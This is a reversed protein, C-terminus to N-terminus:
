NKIVEKYVLTYSDMMSKIDYEDARVACDNAIKLYYESDKSLRNILQALEEANKNEFLLGAGGVVEKLGNVNTAIFPKGAAMGEISSLSLGEYDSAMIVVDSTKLIRPVDTRIYLFHIRKEVGLEEAQRRVRIIGEDEKEGGVFVAHIHDPLKAMSEVITDQRKMSMFRAVMTIVFCNEDIGLLESKTYATANSYKKTDIGNNIYCVHQIDPFADKYTDLVKEACAIIKKYGHKYVWSDVFHLFFNHRRKNNTSHETYVMPAKCFSLFKAFATWYLAPFLHVHIIDYRKIVGAIKFMLLPNYVSGKEWFPRVCVGEKEMKDRVPTQKPCVLPMVTVDHGLRNQETSLGLLVNEAGGMSLTDIIHLIKM